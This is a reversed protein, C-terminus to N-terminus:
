PNVLNELGLSRCGPVGFNTVGVTGKAVASTYACTVPTEGNVNTAVFDIQLVTELAAQMNWLTYVAQQASFWQSALEKSKPVVALHAYKSSTGCSAVYPVRPAGGFGATLSPSFEIILPQNTSEENVTPQWAKLGVIKMNNFLRAPTASGGVAVCYMDLLMTTTFATTLGVGSGLVFRLTYRQPIQSRFSPIVAASVVSAVTMPTEAPSTYKDKTVVHSPSKSSRRRRYPM